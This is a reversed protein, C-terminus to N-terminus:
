TGTLLKETMVPCKGTKGPQVLVLASSLTDRELVCCLKLTGGTLRSCM